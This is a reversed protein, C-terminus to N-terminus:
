FDGSNPLGGNGQNGHKQDVQVQEIWRLWGGAKSNDIVYDFVLNGDPIMNARGLKFGPPKAHGKILGDVLNRFHSDFLKKHSERITACLGWLICFLFLMQLQITDVQVPNESNQNAILSDVNLMARFIRLMSQFLHLECFPVFLESNAIQGLCSPVLWEFMEDLNEIQEENVSVRPLEDLFSDKLPKWGLSKSDMYIM